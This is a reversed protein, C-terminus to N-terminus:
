RKVASVSQIEDGGREWLCRWRSKFGGSPCSGLIAKQIEVQSQDDSLWEAIYREADPRNSCNKSRIFKKVAHNVFYDLPSM